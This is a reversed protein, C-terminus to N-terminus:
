HLVLDSEARLARGGRALAADGADGPERFHQPLHTSM